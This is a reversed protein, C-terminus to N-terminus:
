SGSAALLMLGLFLLSFFAGGVAFAFLCGPMLWRTMGSDIEASQPNTPDYLVKVAQGVRYAAPMTGFASVFRATQGAPTRFEVDPCYIHGHRARRPELGVVVGEAPASAARKRSGTVVSVIAGVLCGIAVLCAFASGFVFM